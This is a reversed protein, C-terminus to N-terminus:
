VLLHHTFLASSGRLYLSPYWVLDTWNAALRGSSQVHFLDQTMEPTHDQHHIRDSSPSPVTWLQLSTATKRLNTKRLNNYKSVNLLVHRTVWGGSKWVWRGGELSFLYDSGPSATRESGPCHHKEKSAASPSPSERMWRNPSCHSEFYARSYICKSRWFLFDM